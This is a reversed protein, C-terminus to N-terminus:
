KVGIKMVHKRVTLVNPPPREYDRRLAAPAQRDVFRRVVDEEHGTESVADVEDVLECYRPVVRCGEDRFRGYAPYRSQQETDM